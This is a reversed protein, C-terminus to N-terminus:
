CIYPVINVDWLAPVTQGVAARGQARRYEGGKSLDPKQDTQQHLGTTTAAVACWLRWSIRNIPATPVYGRSSTRTLAPPIRTTMDGGSWSCPDLAETVRYKM